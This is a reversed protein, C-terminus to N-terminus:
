FFKFKRVRGPRTPAPKGWGAAPHSAPPPLGRQGRPAPGATGAGGPGARGPRRKDRSPPALLLCITFIFSAPLWSTYFGPRNTAFKALDRRLPLVDTPRRRLPASRRAGRLRGSQLGAPTLALPAAPRQGGSPPPQAAAPTEAAAPCTQGARPPLPAPLSAPMLLPGSATRLPHKGPPAAQPLSRASGAGRARSHRQLLACAYFRPLNEM